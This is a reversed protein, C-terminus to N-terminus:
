GTRKATMAGLLRLDDREVALAGRRSLFDCAPCDKSFVLPPPERAQCVSAITEIVQRTKPLHDVIRVTRGRHGEGYFSKAAQRFKEQPRRGSQWPASAFSFITPSTAIAGPPISSRSMVAVPRPGANEGCQRPGPRSDIVRDCDVFLTAADRAPAGGSRLFDSRKPVSWAPSLSRPRRRV